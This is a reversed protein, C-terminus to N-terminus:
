AIRVFRTDARPPLLGVYRTQRAEDDQSSCSYPVVFGVLQPVSSPALYVGGAHYCM